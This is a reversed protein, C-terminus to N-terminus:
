IIKRFTLNLRPGTEKATKPLAHKWRHQCTGGMYLLSGSPLNTQIVTKDILHKLNFKRAAGLSVSAIIPNPGLEPENDQHYGMGDNGTRYYNILCSNFSVGVLQEIKEKIVKIYPPWAQPNWRKKNYTYSIGEDAIWAVQRQLVYHKGFMFINEHELTVQEKILNYTSLAQSETLFTPYLKVQADYDTVIVFDTKNEPFLM